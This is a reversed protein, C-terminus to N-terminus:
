DWGVLSSLFSVIELVHLSPLGSCVGYACLKQTCNTSIQGPVGQERSAQRIWIKAQLDDREEKIPFSPPGKSGSEGSDNSLALKVLKNSTIKM